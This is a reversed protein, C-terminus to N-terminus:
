LADVAGGRILPVVQMRLSLIYTSVAGRAIMVEGRSVGLAKAVELSSEGAQEVFQTPSVGLKELFMLSTPPILPHVVLQDLSGFVNKALTRLAGLNALNSANPSAFVPVINASPLAIEMRAKTRGALTLSDATLDFPIFVNLQRGALEADWGSALAHAAVRTDLNAGVDIVVQSKPDGFLLDEIPGLAVADATESEVLEDSGAVTVSTVNKFLSALRGQQDIQGIGPEFHLQRFADVLAVATATKRVGGKEQVVLCVDSM